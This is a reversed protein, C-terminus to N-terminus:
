NKREQLFIYEKDFEKTMINYLIAKYAINYRRNYAIRM